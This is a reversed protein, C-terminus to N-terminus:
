DGYPIQNLGVDGLCVTKDKRFSVLRPHRMKILKQTGMQKVGAVYGNFKFIRNTTEPYMANFAVNVVVMPKIFITERDEGVKYKMLKWLTERLNFNIGSAVDGVEVFSMDERLLALMLSTVKKEAFLKRKNIGIIVADMELYPKIKFVGLSNRYVLGEYGIEKVYKEWFDKVDSISQPKMWTLVHVNRCGKVWCSAEELKWHYPEHITNGNISILDWIGIFVKKRLSLDSGKMYHIFNPLMLPRDNDMAYLEVLLEAEQVNTTEMAEAFEALAPFWKDSTISASRKKGWKNMTFTEGNRDYRLYTFEGDAKVSCVSNSDIHLSDLERDSLGVMSPKLKEVDLSM